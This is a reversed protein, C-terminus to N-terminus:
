IVHKAETGDLHNRTCEVLYFNMEPSVTWLNCMLSISFLCEYFEVTVDVAWQGLQKQSDVSFSVPKNQIIQMHRIHSPMWLKLPALMKKIPPSGSLIDVVVWPHAVRCPFPYGSGKTTIYPMNQCLFDAEHKTCILYPTFEKYKSRVEHKHFIFCIEKALVYGINSCFACPDPYGVRHRYGYAFVTVFCYLSRTLLLM